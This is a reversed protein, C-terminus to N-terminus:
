QQGMNIDLEFAEFRASNTCNGAIRFARRRFSGLQTVFTYDSALSFPVPTSFTGYDNDSYSLTLSNNNLDGILGFRFCFKRNITDFDIPVTTISVPLDHSLIDSGAGDQLSFVNYYYGDSEGLYQVDGMLLPFGEPATTSWKFPWQTYGNMSWEHWLKEDLDYVWTRNSLVLIYLNHGKVSLCYGHSSSLAAGEGVLSQRVPEIAIDTAKFGDLSWVSVGGSATQGVFMTINNMSAVADRSACGILQVAGTNRAFPTGTANAADYFFETTSAGFAIFYNLHKSITVVNDPSMEATIFDGPTWSTPDNLDSNYVDGTGSKVLAIYGDVFVPCPVHPTPLDADTIQVITNDDKAVYARTGDTIFLYKYTTTDGQVFGVRGTSTPLAIVAVGDQYVTGGVATFLHGNFVALGRGEGTGGAVAYHLAGPRTKLYYKKGQTAETKIVEPFVNLFRQDKLGSSDRQQPSGVLNFRQTKYTSQEPTKTYPM